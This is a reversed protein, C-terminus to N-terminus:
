LAISDCGFPTATVLNSERTGHLVTPTNFNTTTAVTEEKELAWTLDKERHNARPLNSELQEVKTSLVGLASNLDEVKKEVVPLRGEVASKLDLLDARTRDEAAMRKKENEAITKLLLDFKGEVDM